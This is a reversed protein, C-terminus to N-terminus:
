ISSHLYDSIVAETIPQVSMQTIPDQLIYELVIDVQETNLGYQGFNKIGFTENFKEMYKMACQGIEECTMESCFEGGLLTGVKRIKEPVAKSEERLVLPMALACAAGHHIHAVAGVAHAISHGFHVSSRNFSMGAMASATLLLGLKETDPIEAFYVDALNTLIIEMAGFALADSIPNAAVSTYAEISHALADLATQAVLHKPLKSLLLPDLLAIDPAAFNDWFPLKRNMAKDYVVGGDTVESGTGCTTPIAAFIVKRSKKIMDMGVYELIDGPNSLMVAIAKATDICSGGGVAVVAGVKQTDALQIGERINEVPADSEIKNFPVVSFGAGEMSLKLPQTLGSAEVNKGHVFLVKDGQKLGAKTLAQGILASCGEAYTIMPQVHFMYQMKMNLEGKLFVCKKFLASSSIIRQGMEM